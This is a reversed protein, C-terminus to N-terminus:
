ESLSGIGGRSKHTILATASHVDFRPGRRPPCTTASGNADAHSSIPYPRREDYRVRVAISRNQM